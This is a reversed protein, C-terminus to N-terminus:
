DSTPREVRDIVLVDVPARTSELKLGLQERLATALSPGSVDVTPQTEASAVPIAFELTFDFQGDLGTRDIVARDVGAFSNNSLLAALRELREARGAVRGRDPRSAAVLGGSGCPISAFKPDQGCPEGPRHLAILPGLKGPTAVTLALVAGERQETHWALKFREALLARVLVRMDSKTAEGTARAQIDFRENYVWSPASLMEGQSRGFAFRIYAILPVNTASFLSGRVYADGPGLPFRSTTPTDTTDAKVSAVEFTLPKPESQPQGGQGYLRSASAMATLLLAGSLLRTRM